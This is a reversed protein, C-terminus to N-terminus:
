ACHDEALPRVTPNRAHDLYTAIALLAQRHETLLRSWSDEDLRRGARLQVELEGACAALALAGIQASTSKLTGVGTDQVCVSVSVDTDTQAAVTVRVIVEGEATFKIANSILNAIIQRLRFQDGRVALQDAQPAFQAALELRKSEAPQAFM